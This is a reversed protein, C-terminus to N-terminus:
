KNGEKAAMQQALFDEIKDRKLLFGSLKENDVMITPIMRIGKKRALLPHMLVDVTELTFHDNEAIIERLVKLAM